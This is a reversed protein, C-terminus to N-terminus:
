NRKSKKKAIGPIFRVQVLNKRPKFSVSKKKQSKSRPLKLIGKQITYVAKRAVTKKKYCTKRVVPKKKGSGKKVPKKKSLSEKSSSTKKSCGAKRSYNDAHQWCFYKCGVRCSAARKCPLGKSTSGQCKKCNM